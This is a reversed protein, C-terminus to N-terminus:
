IGLSCIELIQDLFTSAPESSGETVDEETPNLRLGKLYFFGHPQNILLFVM